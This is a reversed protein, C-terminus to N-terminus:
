KPLEKNLMDRIEKLYNLLPTFDTRKGANWNKKNTRIFYITAHSCNCIRGMDADSLGCFRALEIVQKKTM